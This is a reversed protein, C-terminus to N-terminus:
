RKFGEVLYEAVVRSINDKRVTDGKGVYELILGQVM